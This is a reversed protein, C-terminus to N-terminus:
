RPTNSESSSRVRSNSAVLGAAVASAVFMMALFLVGSGLFVTAFFRDEYSGLRDRVVGIFWLFSIGAFPMLVTAVTIARHEQDLWGATDRLGEPMKTRILILVASFLVAFVVGALAAARPTELQRLSPGSPTSM